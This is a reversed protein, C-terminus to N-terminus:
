IFSIKGKDANSKVVMYGKESLIKSIYILKKTKM